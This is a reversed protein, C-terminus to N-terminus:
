ISPYARNIVYKINRYHTGTYSLLLMKPRIKVLTPVSPSRPKFDPPEIKKHNELRLKPKCGELRLLERFVPHGM